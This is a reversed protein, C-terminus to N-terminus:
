SLVSEKCGSLELWIDASVVVRGPMLESKCSCKTSKSTHIIYVSSHLIPNGQWGAWPPEGPSTWVSKSPSKGSAFSKGELTHCSLVSAQDATLPFSDMGPILFLLCFPNILIESTKWPFLHASSNSHINSPMKGKSNQEHNTKTSVGTAMVM